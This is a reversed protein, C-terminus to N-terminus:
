RDTEKLVALRDAYAARITTLTPEDLTALLEAHAQGWEAPAAKTPCLNMCLRAM